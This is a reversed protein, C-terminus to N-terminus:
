PALPEPPLTRAFFEVRAQWQQTELRHGALTSALALERLVERARPYDRARVCAEILMLRASRLLEPTALGPQGPGPSLSLELQDRADAGDGVNLLQRGVLYAGLARQHPLAAVQLAAYLRLVAQSAHDPQPDFPSFYALLRPALAPDGAGRRKIQLTRQQAEGLGRELARAYHGDATSLDGRALALDGRREDLVALLTDSLELGGPEGPHLAADAVADLTGAADDRHGTQAQAHALALRHEPQEPEVSCLERLAGLRREGDGRAQAANAEAALDAARHACPRQFIPRQKYRQRLAEIDKPLLERAALFALWQPELETLSTGYALDFDGASRYLESFAAVGRTEILWLSFSGAAAYARRSSKGWFGLGMIDALPPRLGLRELIAAQDHLDLHGEPRPALATAFGELLALNVRPGGWGLRAPAGFVPDGFGYSFAHALEHHMVRHPFPQENLYLHGRWPPAVETTGAGLLARKSEPTPFVFSHIPPEPHAGLRTALLDWAFEHEAAVLEIDRATQSGPAYHIVFHESRHTGLLSRALSDVDHHFGHHGPRLGLSAACALALVCGALSWPRLAPRQPQLEGRSRLTPRQLQLSPSVVLRILLLAAACALLNYGRFWLYRSSIPIGEDYIPGAFYGFFPDFAFVVPDAYIRWLGVILCFLLPLLGLGIQRGRRTALLGGWLGAVLGCLGSLAPGMAFYALGMWPDCNTQWLPAVLLIALPIALLIALERLGARLLAPLPGDSNDSAGRARESRVADDVLGRAREDRVADVGVGVAFLALPATLVLSGEYGLTGVLPVATLGATALGLLWRRRLRPAGLHRRLLTGPGTM